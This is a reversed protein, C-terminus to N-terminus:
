CCWIVPLSVRSNRDVVGGDPTFIGGGPQAIDVLFAASKDLKKQFTAKQAANM